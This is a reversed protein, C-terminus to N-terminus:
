LLRSLGARKPRGASCRTPRFSIATSGRRAPSSWSAREFWLVTETYRGAQGPQVLGNLDSLARGPASCTLLVEQVQLLAEAGNASVRALAVSALAACPRNGALAPAYHPRSRTLTM